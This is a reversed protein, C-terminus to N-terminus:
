VDDVEIPLNLQTLCSGNQQRDCSLSFDSKYLLSLREQSNLLGIGFGDDRKQKAMSNTMKILLRKNDVHASISINNVEGDEQAGHKVANEVLTHLLLFPIDVNEAESSLKISSSLREEFRLTQFYVYKKVFIIEDKLTVIHSNKGLLARLMYSLEALAHTARDTDKMRMLGSITNLANFLFHPNLQSELASLKVKLLQTQLLLNEQDKTRLQELYISVYSALLVAVYITLDYPWSATKVMKVLGDIFQAEGALEGM